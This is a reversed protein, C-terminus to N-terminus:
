VVAALRDPRVQPSSRPAASEQRASAYYAVGHGVLLAFAPEPVAYLPGTWPHLYVAGRDHLRRLADHFAGISPAGARRFLEPLPCDEGASSDWDSLRSLLVDALDAAPTPSAETVRGATVKPLVRAVADRLGILGDAMRRADALLDDVEGQRAELVRVFDELVQKPNAAALLFAWGADTLAHQERGPKARADAVPELLGDALCKQAAPKATAPFLGAEAKSVFL